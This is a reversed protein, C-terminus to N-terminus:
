KLSHSLFIYILRLLLVTNSGSTKFCIGNKFGHQFREDMSADMSRMRATSNYVETELILDGCCSVLPKINDRM